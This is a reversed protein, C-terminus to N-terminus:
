KAEKEKVHDRAKQRYQLTIYHQKTPFKNEWSVWWAALGEGNRVVVGTPAKDGGKWMWRTAGRSLWSCVGKEPAGRQRPGPGDVHDEVDSSSGALRHPVMAENSGSVVTPQILVM